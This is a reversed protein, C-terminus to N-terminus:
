KLNSMFTSDTHVFVQRGNEWFFPLEEKGHDINQLWYLTGAPVNNFHLYNYKAKITAFEQWGNDYYWFRYQDSPVIMNNANRPALRIATIIVPQGFDMGVSSSGAFTEM